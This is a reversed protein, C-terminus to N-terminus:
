YDLPNNDNEYGIPERVMCIGFEHCENHRAVILVM